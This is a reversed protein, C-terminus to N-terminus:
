EDEEFADYFQKVKKNVKIKTYDFATLYLSEISKIRSLAVYTQGCAFVNSGLDMQACDLTAGQSKHITVAWALILPVQKVFLGKITDSKWKYPGIPITMGNKFQVYPINNNIERVIGTSGNSIGNEVDLNAICMVQCGERLVLKEEFMGNNLLFNTEHKIATKSPPKYGKMAVDDPEPEYASTVEFNYTNTELKNLQKHNIYRAEVKIPTLVVPQVIEEDIPKIRNTLAKCISKTIVGKRIKHLMDIFKPDKQRFVDTLVMQIDFTENWLPSEFCFKSTDSNDNDGVPPLQYFDGSFILQMGGFPKTNEHVTKGIRDLLEFLYKSMMSVEDVILLETRKWKSRRSRNYYIRKVIEDPSGNAKGIQAWRHLTTAGCELLYAACGTLACVSYRIGEDNAYKVIHKIFHSKGCGGPGSVFLNNKKKFEDFLYQQDESLEDM